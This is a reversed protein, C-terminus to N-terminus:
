DFDAALAPDEVHQFMRLVQAPTVRPLSLPPLEEKGFFAVETTEHSPTPSGGLLECRLFIKYTWFLERPHEPHKSKDLLALLQVPKVVFGTDEIVEREAMEGPTSGVDAWGGPLSWLGDASERVFLLKGAQPVVARVDVKPTPYGKELAVVEAAPGVGVGLSGSMIRAALDMLSEYRQRDYVGETYALGAQAIRQLSQVVDLWDM